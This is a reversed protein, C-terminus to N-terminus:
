DCIQIYLSKNLNCKSPSTMTKRTGKNLFRNKLYNSWKLAMVTSKNSM